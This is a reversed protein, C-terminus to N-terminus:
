YVLDQGQKSSYNDSGSHDSNSNKDSFRMADESYMGDSSKQVNTSKGDSKLLKSNKSKYSFRKTRNSSKSDVSSARLLSNLDM